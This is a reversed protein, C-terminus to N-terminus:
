FLAMDPRGWSGFITFFQIGTSPIRYLPGYAHGMLENAKKVCRLVSRITPSAEMKADIKVHPNELSSRPPDDGFATRSLYSTPQWGIRWTASLGPQCSGNLLMFGSLGPPMASDSM